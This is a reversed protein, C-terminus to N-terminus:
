TNTLKDTNLFHCFGEENGFNIDRDKKSKSYKICTIPKIQSFDAPWSTYLVKGYYSQPEIRM